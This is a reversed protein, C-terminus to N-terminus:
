VEQNITGLNNAFTFAWIPYAFVLGAFIHLALGKPLRADDRGLREILVFWVTGVLFAPIVLVVQQRFPMVGFVLLTQLVIVSLFGFLGIALAATNLRGARPGLKRHIFFMIPLLLVYHLIVAVDNLPGFIPVGSYFIVLFILGAAALIGSAYASWIIMQTEVTPSATITKISNQM